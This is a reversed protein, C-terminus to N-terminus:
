IFSLPARDRRASHRRFVEPLEFGQNPAALLQCLQSIVVSFTHDDCFSCQCFINKFFYLFVTSVTSCIHYSLMQQRPSPFFVHRQLGPFLVRLPLLSFLVVSRQFSFPFCLLIFWGISESLFFYGLVSLSAPSLGGRALVFRLPLSGRLRSCNLGFPRVRAGPGCARRLRLSVCLRTSIVKFMLTQDQSLIFAPPTSLVHLDFPARPKGRAYHRVPSYCTPLRGKVPPYCESISALVAYARPNAHVRPSLNM